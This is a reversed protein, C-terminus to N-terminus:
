ETKKILLHTYLDDALLTGGVARAFDLIDENHGGCSCRNAAELRRERAQRGGLQAANGDLGNHLLGADGGAVDVFHVHAVHARGSETLSRGTLRGDEAAQWRVGHARGDVLHARRAHFGDHQACLRQLQASLYSLVQLYM